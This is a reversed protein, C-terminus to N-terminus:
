RPLLIGYKGANVAHYRLREARELDEGEPDDLLGRLVDVSLYLLALRWFERPTYRQFYSRVAALAFEPYSAYQFAFRALEQWPDGMHTGRPATCEVQGFARCRVGELLGGHLYCISQGFLHHREERFLKELIPDEGVSSLRLAALTRDMERGFAIHWAADGSAPYGHMRRLADGVRIGIEKQRRLPMKRLALSLPVGREKESLSYVEEGMFGFELPRPVPVGGDSLSEAWVFEFRRAEYTEEGSPRLLLRKGGSRVAYTRAGAAESLLRARSLLTKETV